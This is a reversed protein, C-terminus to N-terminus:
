SKRQIFYTDDASLSPKVEEKGIHLRKNIKRIQNRHSSSGINHQIFTSLIPIRTKHRMKSSHKWSKMTSCTFHYSHAQWIHGKDRQSIDGRYGSKPFNKMFPNQTKELAKEADISITMHNNNKLKDNHHKVNIQLYQVMKADKPYVGSSWATTRQFHIMPNLKSIYKNLIKAEINMLSLQDTIKHKISDKTKTDPYHQGWLMLESTNERNCNQFLNFTPTLEERFTQYFEGPFGDLRPSQWTQKQKNTQKNKFSEIGNNTVPRHVHIFYLILGCFLLFLIIGNLCFSHM